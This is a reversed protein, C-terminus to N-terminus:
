LRTALHVKRPRVPPPAPWFKRQAVIVIAAGVASVLVMTPAGVGDAMGAVWAVINTVGSGAIGLVLDWILGPGGDRMVVSALWGVIAGAIVFTVFGGFGM